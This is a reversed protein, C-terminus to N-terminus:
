KEPRHLIWDESKGRTPYLIQYREAFFSPRTSLDQNSHFVKDISARVIRERVELIINQEKREVVVVEEEEGVFGDQMLRNETRKWVVDECELVDKLCRMITEKHIEVYAASSMAVTLTPGYVDLSLGSLGDGEGNLLRYSDTSPSPLGLSLRSSQAARLKRSFISYVSRRQIFLNPSDSTKSKRSVEM